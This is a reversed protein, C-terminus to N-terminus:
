YMGLVLLVVGAAVGAEGLAAAAVGPWISEGRRRRDRVVLLGCVAGAGALVFPVVTAPVLVAGIAGIGAAALALMPLVRRAPPSEPAVDTPDDPEDHEVVEETVRVAGPGKAAADDLRPPTAEVRTTWEAGDWWRNYPAGNPDAYWGEPRSGASDTM